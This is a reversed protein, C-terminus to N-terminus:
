LLGSEKFSFHRNQGIIVHDCLEIRLIQGAERIRRTLSVDAQSPDPEGSPHNHMLVIGFAAEMIAIRFVERPHAMAENLSGVSVFHHGKVRLRTNLILVVVCECDNQFQPSSTIQRHWYGVASDPASIQTLSEPVPCERLSIVKWEHSSQRKPERHAEDRFFDTQDM